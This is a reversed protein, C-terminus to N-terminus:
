EKTEIVEPMKELFATEITDELQHKWTFDTMEPLDKPYDHYERFIGKDSCWHYLEWFAENYRKADCVKESIASAYFKIEEQKIHKLFLDRSEHISENYSERSYEEALVQSVFKLMREQWGLMEVLKWLEDDATNSVVTSIIDMMDIEVKGQDTIHFKMDM